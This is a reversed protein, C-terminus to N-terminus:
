LAIRTIYNIDSNVQSCLQGGYYVSVSVMDENKPLTRSNPSVHIENNLGYLIYRALRLECRIIHDYLM